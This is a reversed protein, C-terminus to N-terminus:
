GPLLATRLLEAAANQKPIRDNELCKVQVAPSCARFPFAQFWPPLLSVLMRCRCRQGM